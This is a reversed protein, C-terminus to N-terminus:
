RFEAVWVPRAERLSRAVLLSGASYGFERSEQFSGAVPGLGFLDPLESDGGATQCCSGPLRRLWLFARTRQLLPGLRKAYPLRGSMCTIGKAAGPEVMRPVSTTRTVVIDVQPADPIWDQNTRAVTETLAFVGQGAPACVMYRADVAIRLARFASGYRDAPATHGPGPHSHDSIVGANPPPWAVGARWRRRGGVGRLLCPARVAAILVSIGYPQHYLYSCSAGVTSPDSGREARERANGILTAM